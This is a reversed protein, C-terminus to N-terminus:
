LINKIFCLILTFLFIGINPLIVSKIWSRIKLYFNPVARPPPNQHLSQSSNGVKEKTKTDIMFYSPLLYLMTYTVKMLLTFTPLPYISCM